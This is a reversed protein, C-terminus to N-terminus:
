ETVADTAASIWARLEDSHRPMDESWIHLLGSREAMVFRGDYLVAGLGRAVHRTGLLIGAAPDWVNLEGDGADVSLLRTGNAFYTVSEVPRRPTTSLERKTWTGVDWLLIRGDPGSSALTRGDPSYALSLVWSEHGKLTTTLSDQGVIRIDHDWAGAAVTGTDPSFAV